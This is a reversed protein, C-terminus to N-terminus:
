FFVQAFLAVLLVGLHALDTACLLLAIEPLTMTQKRRMFLFDSARAPRRVLCGCSWSRDDLVPPCDCSPDHDTEKDHIFFVQALLAVFLAGQHALDTTWFLLAIEPLSM